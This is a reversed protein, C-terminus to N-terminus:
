ANIIEEIDDAANELYAIITDLNDINEQMKNGRESTQLLEPLNDLAEQEEEIIHNLECVLEDIKQAVCELRTRRQKNM